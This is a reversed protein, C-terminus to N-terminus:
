SLLVRIEASTRPFLDRLRTPVTEEDENEDEDDSTGTGNAAEAEDVLEDALVLLREAREFEDCFREAARETVERALRSERLWRVREMADMLASPLFRDLVQGAETLAQPQTAPLARVKARLAASDDDEEDEAPQLSLLATLLEDLGSEARLYAYQRRALRDCQERLAADLEDLRRRTFEFQALTDKTATLCNVLFIAGSLEDDMVKAMNGCGTMFPDLAEKLILAFESEREEGAATLSTEFTRGIATLQKLADLLFDPAHLDPPAHQFEGELTAIHDRVLSRFQRTAEAELNGLSDVLVSEDGLLKAFTVKYFNILNALKYALITEENARVVQEVRQRLIHAVGSVDRDVLENLASVGDFEPNDDLEDAVLRRWVEEERGQRVHAALSGDGDGGDSVFLGELAEREGVAASHTWALMDGVYRLPDHATLEIPKVSPDKAHVAPAPSTSSLPSEGTLAVYFAESLIHERASAFFDLCGQFLSPREALVRLARRISKSIQPNELNLSKFERQIWRYLKQFASNLTKSTQDMMELGLTQSELGLLIECDKSIRKAKALAAFFSDDVPESTLTLVAVEADSLVFHERFSQLLRQKTEVHQRQQMLGDAEALVASTAQHASTLQSRM